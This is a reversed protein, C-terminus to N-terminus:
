AGRVLSASFNSWTASQLITVSGASTYDVQAFYVELYDTTGNMYIVSSNTMAPNAGSGSSSFSATTGRFNSGNKYVDCEMYYARGSTVGISLMVNVQYYGAVTPTFRYNSTDFCSATDFTETNFQIKTPTGTSTITQSSSLYASFTPGTGAVPTALTAQTVTASPLGGATLGTITGSGSLTM